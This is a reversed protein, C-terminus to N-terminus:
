VMKRHWQGHRLDGLNTHQRRFQMLTATPGYRSSQDRNASVTTDVRLEQALSM